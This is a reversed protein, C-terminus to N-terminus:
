RYIFNFEFEATVNSAGNGDIEINNFGPVLDIWNWNTDHGVRTNGIIPHVGSLTLTQYKQLSGYYEFTQGTMHNTMKLGRPADASIRIVLKHTLPDITDNSGNWIEFRKSDYKYSIDRSTILGNQFQWDDTLFETSLTDNLSESYGKFVNFTVEFTGYRDGIDEIGNSECYVAYKKGPMDSHNIYFADRRFLIGRLRHKFLNYDEVDVGAYFFRLILKFPGFSPRGIMVGDRGATELTNARVEVEDEDYDLFTLKPIDTLMMDMDNNFM